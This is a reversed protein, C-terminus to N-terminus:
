HRSNLPFRVHALPEGVKAFSGYSVNLASVAAEGIKALPMAISQTLTAKKACAGDLLVAASRSQLMYSPTSM